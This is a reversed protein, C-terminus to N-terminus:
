HEDSSMFLRSPELRYTERVKVAAARRGGRTFRDINSLGLTLDTRRM